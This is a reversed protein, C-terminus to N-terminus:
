FDLAHDLFSIHLEVPNSKEVCYELSGFLARALLQEISDGLSRASAGKGDFVNLIQRLCGVSDGQFETVLVDDAETGTIWSAVSFPAFELYLNNRFLHRDPDVRLIPVIGRYLSRF